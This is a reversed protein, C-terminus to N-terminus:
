LLLTPSDIPLMPSLQWVAPVCVLMCHVNHVDKSLHPTSPPPLTKLAVLLLVGDGHITRTPGENKRVVRLEDM